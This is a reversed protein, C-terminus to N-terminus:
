TILQVEELLESQKPVVKSVKDDWRLSSHVKLLCKLSLYLIVCLLIYSCVLTSKTYVM